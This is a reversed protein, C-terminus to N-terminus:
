SEHVVGRATLLERLQMLGRRIHSKVTGLALGTRDSIQQHSLDELFAMAILRRQQEGLKALAAHIASGSTMLDLLDVISRDERETYADGPEDPHLPEFRRREGVRRKIDVARTYAIVLLWSMVSGRDPCYSAAREWVQQFVDGVAEEADDRDGLVRLAV